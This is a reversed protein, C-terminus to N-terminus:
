APASLIQTEIAQFIEFADAFCLGRRELDQLFKRGRALFHHEFVRAKRREGASQSAQISLLLCPNEKQEGHHNTTTYKQQSSLHFVQFSLLWFSKNRLFLQSVQVVFYPLLGFSEPLIGSNPAILLKPLILDRIAHRSGM